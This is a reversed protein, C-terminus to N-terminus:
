QEFVRDVQSPTMSMSIIKHSPLELNIFVDNAFKAVENESSDLNRTAGFCISKKRVIASRCYHKM